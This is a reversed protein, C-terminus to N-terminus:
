PKTAELHANLWDRLLIARDRDLLVVNQAILTVSGDTWSVALVDEGDDDVLYFNSPHM